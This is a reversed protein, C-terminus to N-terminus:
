LLSGWLKEKEAWKKGQPFVLAVTAQDMYVKVLTHLIRSFPPKAYFMKWAGLTGCDYWWSNNSKPTCFYEAEANDKSALLEVFDGNRTNPNLGFEEITDGKTASDLTYNETRHPRLTALISEHKVKSNLAM